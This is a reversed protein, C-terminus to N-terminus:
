SRWCAATVKDTYNAQLSFGCLKTKEEIRFVRPSENSVSIFLKLKYAFKRAAEWIM